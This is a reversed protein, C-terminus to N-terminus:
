KGIITLVTKGEKSKITKGRLDATFGEDLLALGINIASSDVPFNPPHALVFYPRKRVIGTFYARATLEQGLFCGKKLDISGMLDFNARAPISDQCEWAEPIMMCYRLADYKLKSIAVVEDRDFMEEMGAKHSYMRLGFQECRPDFAAFDVNSGELAGEAIQGELM